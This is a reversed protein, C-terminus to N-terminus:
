RQIGLGGLIGAIIAAATNGLGWATSTSRLREIEHEAIDLRSALVGVDRLEEHHAQLLQDVDRQLRDLKAALVALTVRGNPDGGQESM